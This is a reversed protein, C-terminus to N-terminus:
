GQVCEFFCFCCFFFVFRFVKEHGTFNHGFDMELTVLTQCGKNIKVVTMLDSKLLDWYYKATGNTTIKKKIKTNTEKM